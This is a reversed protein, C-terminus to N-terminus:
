VSVVVGFVMFISREIGLIKRISGHRPKKAPVIYSFHDIRLDCQEIKFIMPYHVMADHQLEIEGTISQLQATGYPSLIRLRSQLRKILM